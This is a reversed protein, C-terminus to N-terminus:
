RRTSDPAARHHRPHPGTQTGPRAHLATDSPAGNYRYGQAGRKSVMGTPATLTDYMSRPRPKDFRQGTQVGPQAKLATDTPPGVYHYGGAGRKSVSGTDQMVRPHSLTDTGAPTLAGTERATDRTQPQQANAMSAGVLTLLSAAASLSIWRLQICM